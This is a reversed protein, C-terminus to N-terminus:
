EEEDGGHCENKKGAEGVQNIVDTLLLLKRRLHNFGSQPFCQELAILAVAAGQIQADPFVREVLFVETIEVDSEIQLFLTVSDEGALDDHLLNLAFVVLDCQSLHHLHSFVGLSAVRNDKIDGRLFLIEAAHSRGCGLLHQGLLQTIM